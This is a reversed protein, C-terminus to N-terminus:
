AEDPEVVSDILMDMFERLMSGLGLAELLSALLNRLTALLAKLTAASRKEQHRTFRRLIARVKLALQTERLGHHDLSSDKAERLATRLNPLETAKIDSWANTLQPRMFKSILDTKLSGDVTEDLFPPYANLRARDSLNEGHIFEPM